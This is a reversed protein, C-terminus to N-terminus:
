SLELLNCVWCCPCELEWAELHRGLLTHVRAFALLVWSARAPTLAPLIEGTGACQPSTYEPHEWVVPAAVLTESSVRM